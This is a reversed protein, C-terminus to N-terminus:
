DHRHHRGRCAACSCGDGHVIEEEHPLLENGNPKRITEPANPDTGATKHYLGTASDREYKTFGRESIYASDDTKRKMEGESYQTVLGAAFFARRLPEGTLPHHTLPADGAGQEIELTAGDSGDANVIVYKFIPM